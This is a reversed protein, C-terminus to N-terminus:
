AMGRAVQAALDSPLRGDLALLRLKLLGAVSLSDTIRGDMAMDMAERLPLRRVSLEETDEPAPAGQELDWAVFVVGSEDTVSNSLDLRLIEALRGARLGTEEALERHATEEDSRGEPSGGEPIEWSYRQHPFRFQGVIWTHGERDIPLVGVARNRFNVVGYIGPRGRPNLVDHHVVRIWPTEYRVEKGLVTWPNRTEDTMVAVPRINRRRNMLRGAHDFGSQRYPEGAKRGPTNREWRGHRGSSRRVPFGGNRVPKRLRFDKQSFNQFLPNEDRFGKAIYGRV